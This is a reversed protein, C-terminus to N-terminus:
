IVHLFVLLVFRKGMSGSFGHSYLGFICLDTAHLFYHLMWLETLQEAFHHESFYLKCSRVYVFNCLFSSRKIWDESNCELHFQNTRGSLVLCGIVSPLNALKKCTHQMWWKSFLFSVLQTFYMAKATSFLLGILGSGHHVTKPALTGRLQLSTLVQAPLPLLSCHHYVREMATLCQETLFKRHSSYNLITSNLVQASFNGLTVSVGTSRHLSKEKSESSWIRRFLETSPSLTTWPYIKETRVKWKM